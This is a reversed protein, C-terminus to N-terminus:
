LWRAAARGTTGTLRSSASSATSTASPRPRITHAFSTARSQNPISPPAGFRPRIACCIWGGSTSSSRSASPPCAENRRPLRRMSATDCGIGAASLQRMTTTIRSTTAPPACDALSKSGRRAIAIALSTLLTSPAPRVSPAVTSPMRRAM